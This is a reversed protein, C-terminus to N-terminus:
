LISLTRAVPCKCAALLQTLRNNNGNGFTYANTCASAIQRRDALTTLYPAYILVQDYQRSAREVLQKINMHGQQKFHAAPWVFLNDFETPLSRIKLTPADDATDLGFAQAIANRKLDLDILLCKRSKALRLAIQVPVTVPLDKLSNAAFLLCHAKGNLKEIGTLMRDYNIDAHHAPQPLNSSAKSTKRKKWWLAAIAAVMMFIVVGGTLVPRLSAQLPFWYELEAECFNYIM